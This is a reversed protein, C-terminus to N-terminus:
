AKHLKLQEKPITVIGLENLKQRTIESGTKLYKDYLKLVDRDAQVLSQSFTSYVTCLQDEKTLYALQAYANAGMDAYYEVDIIKKNLSDGFFGAIYLARDALDKFIDKKRTSECNMAVLYMEALTEPPRDAGILAPDNIINEQHTSLPAFLNRSDLFYKLMHVLYTELAPQTTMKRRVCAEKVVESFHEEPSIFLFESM